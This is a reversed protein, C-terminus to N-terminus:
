NGEKRNDFWVRIAELHHESVNPNSLLKKLDLCNEGPGLHIVPAGASRWIEIAKEVTMGLIVECQPNPNLTDDSVGKTANKFSSNNLTDNEKIHADQYELDSEGESHSEPLKWTFQGGGRKGTEGQRRTIIGLKAKARKITIISLGADRADNFVQSAPVPGDVLEEKLFDTAEDLASKRETDEIALIRGATLSCEESWYFGDNRLEFGIADGTPALNSKIHVIGRTQPNDPDCGALLVSRCAATFDISGLGRYIPRAAGGKTLHRISLIAVGYREAIHALQAMIARIENPRYLDVKAGLYAVLPDLIALTPRVQKIYNEFKVVGDNDFTFVGDIAYINAVNAGMADLRPRLTDGLGDEASALLVRQPENAELGPLGRGLSVATAIALSVWSKGVGPDGELLTLKGQPIYPYWLWSVTEAKISAMCYLRAAEEQPICEAAWVAAPKRELSLLNNNGQLWAAADRTPSPIEIVALSKAKGELSDIVSRAHRRGAEDNDPVIIVNAGSLMESYEARWKGAGFPCTTGVLGENWVSDADKEGETVYIVDENAIARIVDPLHYLVPKVGELDWIWGGKGDPRRVKFNKPKYRVVEFLLRGHEDHYPYTAEITPTQSDSLFLDSECLNLRALIQSTSCGAHCHLLIKNNYRTISLSPNRDDHVLCLVNWGDKIRQRPKPHFLDLFEEFTKFKAMM